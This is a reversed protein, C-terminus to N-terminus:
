GAPQAPDPANPDVGLLQALISADVKGGARAQAKLQKVAAKRAADAADRAAQDTAAVDAQHQRRAIEADTLPAVTAEGTSCDITVGVDAM